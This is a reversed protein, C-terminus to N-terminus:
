KKLGELWQHFLELESASGADATAQVTAHVGSERRSYFEDFSVSSAGRREDRGRSERFVDDLSLETAAARAPAGSVGATGNLFEGSYAAALSTAARDDVPDTAQGAFLEGLGGGPLVGNRVPTPTVSVRPAAEPTVAPARRGALARFFARVSRPARVESTPQQAASGLETAADIEPRATPSLLETLKAEIEADGPRQALLRQYVDIAADTFGQQLYLEAMTETVFTAPTGADAVSPMALNGIHEHPPPAHRSGSDILQQLAEEPTPMRPEVTPAEEVPVVPIPATESVPPASQAEQFHRTSKEVTELEAVPSAEDLSLPNEFLQAALTDHVAGLDYSSIPPASSAAVTAESSRDMMPPEYLPSPHEVAPLEEVAEEAAATTPPPASAVPTEVIIPTVPPPPAHIASLGIPTARVKALTEDEAPHIDNWSVAPAPEASRVSSTGVSPLAELQAAIEENQPDVELLRRYWDRAGDINGSDRAIDGLQRLAILNEPDLGLATEFTTRADELRGSEFLAQGLVIYGSIYTPQLPVHQRCIEIAMELEGQKRYENALRAFVRRPNEHFQKELEQILASKAM